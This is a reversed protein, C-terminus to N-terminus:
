QIIPYLAGTVNERVNREFHSTCKSALTENILSSPQNRGSFHCSQRMWECVGVRENEGGTVREETEGVTAM